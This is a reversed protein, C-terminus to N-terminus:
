FVQLLLVKEKVKSKFMLVRFEIFDDQEDGIDDFLLDFVLLLLFLKLWKKIM